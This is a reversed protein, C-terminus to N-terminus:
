FTFVDKETIVMDLKIDNDHTEINEVQQLSFAIGLKFFGGTPLFRDYYGGGYGIRSGNADFAVLPIIVLDIEDISIQACADNPELIGYVGFDMNAASDVTRPIIEKTEINTKPLILKKNKLCDNLILSTDVEGNIPCYAMVNKANQYQQTSMVKKCIDDSSAQYIEKDIGLRLSKINM